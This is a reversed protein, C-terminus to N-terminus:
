RARVRALLARATDLCEEPTMRVRILWGNETNIILAVGAGDRDLMAITAPIQHARFTERTADVSCNGGQHKKYSPTLEENLESVPSQWPMHAVEAM